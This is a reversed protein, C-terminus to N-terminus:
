SSLFESAVTHTWGCSVEVVREGGFYNTSIALPISFFLVNHPPHALQGWKNDGWALLEGEVTLAYTTNQGCWM